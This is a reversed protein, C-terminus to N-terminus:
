FNVTIGNVINFNYYKLNPLPENDYRYNLNFNFYLYKSISFNTKCEILVKFDHFNKLVPQIYNVFSLNFYENIFMFFSIYISNRLQVDFSPNDLNYKEHEYLLSSGINLDIKPYEEYTESDIIDLRIGAGVLERHEILL